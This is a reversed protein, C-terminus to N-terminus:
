ERGLEICRTLRCISEDMVQGLGEIPIKELIQRGASIVQAEISFQKGELQEEM